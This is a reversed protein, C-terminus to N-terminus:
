NPQAGTGAPRCVNASCIGPRVMGWERCVGGNRAACLVNPRWASWLILSLVSNPSRRCAHPFGLGGPTLDTLAKVTRTEKRGHGHDRRRDGVPVEAWPLAKLLSHLTPQNAKITVM